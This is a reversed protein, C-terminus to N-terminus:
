AGSVHASSKPPNSFLLNLQTKRDSSSSHSESARPPRTAPVVRTTPPPDSPFALM